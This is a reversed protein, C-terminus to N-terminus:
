YLSDEEDNPDIGLKELGDELHDALHPVGLLYDATPTTAEQIATMVADDMESAEFTGRGIWMIAVLEAQEDRNLGSIFERLETETADGPRSELVTEPTAADGPSDWRAVKADIERARIAVYAVKQSTIAKM